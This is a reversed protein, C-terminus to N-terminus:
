RVSSRLKKDKIKGIQDDIRERIRRAMVALERTQDSTKKRLSDISANSYHYIESKSRKISAM